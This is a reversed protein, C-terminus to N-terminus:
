DRENLRAVVELYTDTVNYTINGTTFICTVPTLETINDNANISEVFKDWIPQFNKSHGCWTTNFNYITIKSEQTNKFTENTNKTFLENLFLFILFTWFILVLINSISYTKM